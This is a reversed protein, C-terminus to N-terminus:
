RAFSLSRNGSRALHGIRHDTVEDLVVFNRNVPNVHEAHAVSRDLRSGFFAGLRLAHAATANFDAQQLVVELLQSGAGSSRGGRGRCSGLLFLDYSSPVARGVGERFLGGSQSAKKSDRM